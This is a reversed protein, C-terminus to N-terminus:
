CRLFWCSDMHELKGLNISNNNLSPSNSEEKGGGRERNNSKPKNPKNPKDTHLHSPDLSQVPKSFIKDTFQSHGPRVRGEQGDMRLTQHGINTSFSLSYVSTFRVKKDPTIPWIVWAPLSWRQTESNSKKRRRNRVKFAFEHFGKAENRNQNM